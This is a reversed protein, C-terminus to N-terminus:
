DNGGLRENHIRMSEKFHQDRGLETTQDELIGRSCEKCEAGHGMNNSFKSVGTPTMKSLRKGVAHAAKWNWDSDVHTNDEEQNYFDAM